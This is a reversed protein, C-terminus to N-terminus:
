TALGECYLWSAVKAPDVEVGAGPTVVEAAGTGTEAHEVRRASLGIRRGFSM